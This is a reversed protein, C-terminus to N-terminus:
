NTMELQSIKQYEDPITAKSPIPFEIGFTNAYKEGGYRVVNVDDRKLAPFDQKAIAFLLDIYSLQSGYHGTRVVGVTGTTEKIFGSLKRREVEATIKDATTKANAEKQALLSEKVRRIDAAYKTAGLFNFYSDIAAIIEDIGEPFKTTAILQMLLLIENTTRTLNIAQLISVHCPQWLRQITSM